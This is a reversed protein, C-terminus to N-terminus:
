RRMELSVIKSDADRLTVTSAVGALARLLEPDRAQQPDLQPTAAVFYDGPLINAITFRGDRDCRTWGVHLSESRWLSEDRAFAVVSCPPQGAARGAVTGSIASGQTTIEIEVPPLPRGPRVEVGSETVDVGDLAIRKLSWGAPLRLVRLVVTGPTAAADFSGDSAVNAVAVQNVQATDRNIAVVQLPQPLTRNPGVARITGRLPGPDGVVITLTRTEASYLDVHEPASAQGALDGSGFAQVTFAGVAPEILTFAGNRDTEVSRDFLGVVGTQNTATVQVGARPKGAPDFVLGKIVTPVVTRASWDAQAGGDGVPVFVAGSADTTGPYFALRVPESDDRTPPESMALLAYSGRPLDAFEFRGAESSTTRAVVIMRMQGALRQAKLVAVLARDLPRGTDDTIRGSLLGTGSQPAGAALAACWFGLLTTVAADRMM